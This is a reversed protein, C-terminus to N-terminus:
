PSVVTNAALAFLGYNQKHDGIGIVDTYYFTISRSLSGSDRGCCRAYERSASRRDQYSAPFMGTVAPKTPQESCARRAPKVAKESDHICSLSLRPLKPIFSQGQRSLQQLDFNGILGM